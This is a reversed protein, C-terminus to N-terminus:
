VQSGSSICQLRFPLSLRCLVGNIKVVVVWRRQLFDDLSLTLQCVVLLLLPVLLKVLDQDDYIVECVLWGEGPRVLKCAKYVLPLCVKIELMVDVWTKTASAGMM